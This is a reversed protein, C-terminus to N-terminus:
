YVLVTDWFACNHDQAYKADTFTTLKGTQESLYVENKPTYKPWPHQGILNPDGTYM